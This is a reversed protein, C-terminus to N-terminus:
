EETAHCAYRVDFCDIGGYDHEIAQAIRYMNRSLLGAAASQVLM